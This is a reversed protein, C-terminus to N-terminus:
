LIYLNQLKIKQLFVSKSTDLNKIDSYLMCMLSTRFSHDAVSEPEYVGTNVWGTRRIRKLVGSIEFFKIINSLKLNSKKKVM